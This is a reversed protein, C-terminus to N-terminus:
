GGRRLILYLAGDGGHRRHAKRIAAISGAHPGAALWDLIKARIAGRKMGRDAADVPRPKGTVVLVLRASMSRAQGIGTELREYASDLGHGHLDLTFDPSISGAQLKRNWHSDLGTDPKPLRRATPEAQQQPPSAVPRPVPRSQKRFVPPAKAGAKKAERTATEPQTEIRAPRKRGPLPAVSAALHAWAAQEEASLGRPPRM